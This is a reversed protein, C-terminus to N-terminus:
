NQEQGRLGLMIRAKMKQSVPAARPGSHIAYLTRATELPYPTPCTHLAPTGCREPTECANGMLCGWCTKTAAGSMGCNPCTHRNGQQRLSM